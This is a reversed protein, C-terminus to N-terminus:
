LSAAASTWSGSTSNRSSGVLPSSGIPRTRMSSKISRTRCRARCGGSRRTLWRSGSTSRSQSWRRPGRCPVRIFVESVTSFRVAAARPAFVHVPPEPASWATAKASAARPWRGRRDLLALHLPSNTSARGPRCRRARVCTNWGRRRSTPAAPAPRSAGRRARELSAKRSARSASHHRELGGFVLAEFALPGAARRPHRQEGHGHDAAPLPETHTRRIVITDQNRARPM